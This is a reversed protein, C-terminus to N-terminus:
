EYAQRRRRSETSRTTRERRWLSSEESLNARTSLSASPGTPVIATDGSSDDAGLGDLDFYRDDALHASEAGLLAAQELPSKGTAACFCSDPAPAKVAIFAHGNLTGDGPAEASPRAPVSPDM